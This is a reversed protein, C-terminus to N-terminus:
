AAIKNAIPRASIWAVVDDRRYAVRRETLQIKPPGAAGLRQLQRLSMRLFEAAEPGTLLHSVGTM